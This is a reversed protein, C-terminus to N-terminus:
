SSSGNREEFGVTELFGETDLFGGFLGRLGGSLVCLMRSVLLLWQDDQYKSACHVIQWTISSIQTLPMIDKHTHEEINQREEWRHKRM